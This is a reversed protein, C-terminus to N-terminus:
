ACVDPHNEKFKSVASDFAKQAKEEDATLKALLTKAEEVSGVKFEDCIRRLTTDYSGQARDQERRRQEVAGKIRQYEQLNAM